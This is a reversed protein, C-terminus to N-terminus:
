RSRETPAEEEDGSSSKPGLFGGSATKLGKRLRRNFEHSYDMPLSPDSRQGCLYNWLKKTQEAVMNSSGTPQSGAAVWLWTALSDLAEPAGHDGALVASSVERLVCGVRYWVRQTPGLSAGFVPDELLSRPLV